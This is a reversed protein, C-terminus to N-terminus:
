GELGALCHECAHMGNMVHKEVMNRSIGMDRAIDTQALGDFKFHVFAQRCRPPLAAITLLLAEARQALMLQREPDSASPAPLTDPAIDPDHQAHTQRRRYHDILLNRLTRYLLARPHQLETHRAITLVRLYSEQVIDDATDRDPTRQRAFHVLENYYQELM